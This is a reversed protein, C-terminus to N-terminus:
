GGVLAFYEEQSIETHEPKGNRSVGAIADRGAEGGLDIEALLDGTGSTLTLKTPTGGAAEVVGKGQAGNAETFYNEEETGGVITFTFGGETTETVEAALAWDFGIWGLCATPSVPLEELTITDPQGWSGWGGALKSVVAQREASADMELDGTYRAYSVWDLTLIELGEGNDDVSRYLSDTGKRAISVMGLKCNFGEDAAADITEALESAAVATGSPEPQPKTTEPQTTEAPQSTQNEPAIPAPNKDGCASLLLATLLPAIIFANRKTTM